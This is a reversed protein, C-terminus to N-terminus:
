RHLFERLMVQTLQRKRTLRTADKWLDPWFHLTRLRDDIRKRLDKDALHQRVRDVQLGQGVLEASLLKRTENSMPVRRNIDRLQEVVEILGEARRMLSADSENRTISQSNRQYDYLIRDTYVFCQARLDGETIWAIDEHVIGERFRLACAQLYARRYFRLWVLHPCEKQRCSLAVWAEGTMEGTPKPQRYIPKAAVGDGSEEGNFAVVDAARPDAVSLLHAIAGPRVRDDADVFWLYQGRARSLGLNRSAAVGRNAHGPHAVVTVRSDRSTWGALMEGSKDSSGDDVAIVEFDGGDQALLSAICADLYAACNYVPVVISVAPNTAPSNM